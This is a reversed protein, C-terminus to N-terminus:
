LSSVHTQYFMSASPASVDRQQCLSKDTQIQSPWSLAEFAQLATTKARLLQKNICNEAENCVTTTMGTSFKFGVWTYALQWHKPYIVSTLYNNSAPYAELLQKWCYQFHEPSIARSVKLFDARFAPYQDGLMPKLNDSINTGLHYFCLNVNSEPM